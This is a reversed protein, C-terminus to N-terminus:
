YKLGFELLTIDVLTLAINGNVKPVNGHKNKVLPNWKGFPL